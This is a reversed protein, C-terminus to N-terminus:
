IAIRLPGNTVTLFIKFTIRANSPLHSSCFLAFLISHHMSRCALPNYIFTSQISLNRAYGSNNNCSEEDSQVLCGEKDRLLNDSDLYDM